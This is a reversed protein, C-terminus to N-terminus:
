KMEVARDMWTRPPRVMWWRIWYLGVVVSVPWFLFLIEETRLGIGQPVGQAFLLWPLGFYFLILLTAIGNGLKQWRERSVVIVLMIPLTLPLLQEMEVRYGLLPSAALSFGIAWIFRNFNGRAARWEYGLAVILVSTLIWGPINAYQPWIHNLIAHTSFGFGAQLSNWSARMFPLVWGPYWFFSLALLIFALMGAGTFVRWRKEWIVWLTIFLLFVGGMEWQFASLVMLGGALEDRGSQISLLIGIYALGLLIAPSGAMFSLYAYYSVFGAVAILAYFLYPIRRDIVRFNLFLFGVLALESITIWFARAMSVDPFIALPFLLMLLHFPVDLIYLDEGSAAPRGYVQDQVHAPVSGSYPEIQDFLFSRGGTRLLYFEGGDPLLNALYYNVVALGYLVLIALIGSIIIFIVERSTLRNPAKQFERFSM